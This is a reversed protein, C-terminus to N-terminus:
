KKFIVHIGYVALAAVLVLCLIAGILAAVNHRPAAQEGAAQEDKSRVYGSVSLAVLGISYITVLGAGAGISILLIKWMSTWDVYSAAVVKM